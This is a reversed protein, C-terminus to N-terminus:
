ETSQDKDLWRQFRESWAFHHIPIGERVRKAVFPPWTTTGLFCFATRLGECTEVPYKKAPDLWVWNRRAFGESLAFRAADTYKASLIM